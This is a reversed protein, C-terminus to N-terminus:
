FFFFSVEGSDVGVGVGGDVSDPEDDEEADGEDEDGDAGGFGDRGDEAHGGRRQVDGVDRDNDRVLQVFM